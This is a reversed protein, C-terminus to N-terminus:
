NIIQCENFMVIKTLFVNRENMVSIRWECYVNLLIDSRENRDCESEGRILVFM